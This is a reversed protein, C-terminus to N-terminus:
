SPIRDSIAQRQWDIARQALKKRSGVCASNRVQQRAVSRNAKPTQVVACGQSVHGPASQRQAAM